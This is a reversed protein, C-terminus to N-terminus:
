LSANKLNQKDEALKENIGNRGRIAVMAELPKAIRKQLSTITKDVKLLVLKLDNQLAENLDLGIEKSTFGGGDFKRHQFSDNISKYIDPNLTPLGINQRAVELSNIIPQFKPDTVM